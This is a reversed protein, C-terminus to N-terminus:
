IILYLLHIIENQTKKKKLCFVAYSIKVHSSNLRTSKRDSAFARRARQETEVIEKIESPATAARHASALRTMSRWTDGMERDIADLELERRTRLLAYLDPTDAILAAIIGDVDAHAALIAHEVAARERATEAAAIASQLGGLALGPLPGGAIGIFPLLAEVTQGLAAV